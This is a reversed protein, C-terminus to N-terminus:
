EEIISYNGHFRIVKDDKMFRDCPYLTCSKLHKYERGRHDIVTYNQRSTKDNSGHACGTVVLMILLLFSNYKM